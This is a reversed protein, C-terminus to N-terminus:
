SDGHSDACGPTVFVAKAFAFTQYAFQYLVHGIDRNPSPPAPFRVDLDGVCGDFIYRAREIHADMTIVVVSDWGREAAQERVWTAEGQTTFPDPYFCEVDAGTSRPECHEDSLEKNSATFVITDAVGAAALEYAYDERWEEVPGIAVIADAEGVADHTPFLVIKIAFALWALFLVALAFVAIVFVRRRTGRRRAVTVGSSM